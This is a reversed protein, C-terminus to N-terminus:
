KKAAESHFRAVGSYLIAVEQQSLEPYAERLAQRAYMTLSSGGWSQKTDFFPATLKCADDFIARLNHQSRREQGGAAGSRSYANDM